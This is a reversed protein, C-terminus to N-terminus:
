SFNAARWTARAPTTNRHAALRQPRPRQNGNADNIYASSYEWAGEVVFIATEYYTGDPRRFFAPSWKM